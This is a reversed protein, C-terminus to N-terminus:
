PAEGNTGDDGYGTLACLSHHMGGPSCGCDHCNWPEREWQERLDEWGPAAPIEWKERGALCSTGRMQQGCAECVAPQPDENM